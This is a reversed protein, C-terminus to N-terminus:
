GLAADSLPYKPPGRYAPAHRDTRDIASARILKIIADLVDLAKKLGELIHARAKAKRLEYMTRNRVVERRFAIFESM